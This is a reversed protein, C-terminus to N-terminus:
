RVNTGSGELEVIKRVIKVTKDFHYRKNKVVYDYGVMTKVEKDYTELRGEITELSDGRYRMNMSLSSKDDYLFVRVLNIKNSYQESWLDYIQQGGIADCVFFADGKDLKSFLENETLGYNYGNGVYTTHEVLEGNNFKRDFTDQSIFEYDVGDVEGKRMPRTTFSLLENSLLNRMISTKGSGSPGSVIFLTTKKNKRFLSTTATKVIHLLSM